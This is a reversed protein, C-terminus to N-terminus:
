ELTEVLREVVIRTELEKWIERKWTEEPPHFGCKISLVQNKMPNGMATHTIIIIKALAIPLPSQQGTAQSCITNASSM